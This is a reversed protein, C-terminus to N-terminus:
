KALETLIELATERRELMYTTYKEIADAPPRWGTKTQGFGVSNKAGLKLVGDPAALALAADLTMKDTDTHGHKLSIEGWLMAGTKITQMEYIMQTTDMHTALELLRDVASGAVDHRTGFEEGRFQAQSIKTFPHEIPCRWANEQCILNLHSVELAGAVIDSKAAYGLLALMPWNEAVNRAQDLDVNAGTTTIAGGTWLLDVEPKTLSKEPIELAKVTHWALASRLTHRISNGSIFPVSAQRGDPLVIDESRLISTNGSTGDGHHIPTTAQATYIM